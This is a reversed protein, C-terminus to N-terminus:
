FAASAALALCCTSLCNSYNVVGPLCFHVLVRGACFLALACLSTTNTFPSFSFFNGSSAMSISGISVIFIAFLMSFCAIHAVICDYFVVSKASSTSSNFTSQAAGGIRIGCLADRKVLGCGGDRHVPAHLQSGCNIRCTGSHSPAAIIRSNRADADVAEDSAPLGTGSSNGSGSGAARLSGAGNSHLVGSIEINRRRAGCEIATLGYLQPGDGARRYSPSRGVVVNGVHIVESTKNGSNGITRSSNCCRFSVGVSGGSTHNIDVASRRYQSGGGGAHTDTAVAACVRNRDASGTRVSVTIHAPAKGAIVAVRFDAIGTGTGARVPAISLGGIKSATRGVVARVDVDATDTGTMGCQGGGQIVAASISNLTNINGYVDIGGSGM